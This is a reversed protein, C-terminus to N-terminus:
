KQISIVSQKAEVHIQIIDRLDKALKERNHSVKWNNNMSNLEQKIDEVFAALLINSGLLFGLATVAILFQIAICSFEIIVAALYGYLNYSKFDIPLRHRFSFFQKCILIIFFRYLHIM